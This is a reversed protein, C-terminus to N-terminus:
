RIIVKQENVIYIGEPIGEFSLAGKKILYGDISYIDFPKGENTIILLDTAYTKVVVSIPKSENGNAYLVTVQYLNDGDSATKDSYSPDKVSTAILEGNRYINFGVVNGTGQEFTIDDLGLWNCEGPNNKSQIAFFTAGQPLNVRIEEWANKSIVHTDGIQTFSEPNNDTISYLVNIRESFKKEPADHNIAFFSITQANGSLDPSILWKDTGVHSTGDKSIGYIASLYTYGSHGPLMKGASYDREFNTVMFAYPEHEHPLQLDNFLSGSISNDRSIMTWAGVNDIMWPEYSEFDELVTKNMPLPANWTLNVVGYTCNGSLNNATPGDYDFLVITSSAKNNDLFDDKEVKVEAEIFFEDAKEVASVPLDIDFEKITFAPLPENISMEKLVNGSKTVKIAYENLDESGSNRVYIRLKGSKGKQIKTPAKMRISVDRSSTEVVNVNDIYLTQPEAPSGTSKLQFNLMIHDLGKIYDPIDVIITEWDTKKTVDYESLNLTKGDPMVANLLFQSTPSGDTRYSFALKVKTDTKINLKGTYLNLIDNYGYTTFKLCSGDDDYSYLDEFEVKSLGADLGLGTGDMWWFHEFAHEGGFSFSENFPLKYPAGTVIANSYQFESNGGTNSAMLAYQTLKQNGENTNYEKEWSTEGVVEGVYVTPKNKDDFTHIKYSITKPNIRGDKQGKTVPNWQFKIKSGLDSISFKDPKVPADVGVFVSTYAEKGELGGLFCSVHYTNIGNLTIYDDKYTQRSGPLVDTMTAIKKDNRKIVVSDIKSLINGNVTQKPATYTILTSLSGDESAEVKLGEPTSPAENVAGKEISLDLLFIRDMNKESIAHFGFYYNADEKPTFMKVFETNSRVLETPPMVIEGSSLISADAEQAVKLEIKEKYYDSNSHAHFKIKYNVDKKLTVPPTVLWDDANDRVSYVYCASIEGHRDDYLIWTSGDNNNDIVKFLNFNEESNIKISWPPMVPVRSTRISSVNPTRLVKYISDKQLLVSEPTFPNLVKQREWRESYNNASATIGLFCCSFLTLIKIKNM